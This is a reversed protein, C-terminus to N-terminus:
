KRAFDILPQGDAKMRRQREIAEERRRTENLRVANRDMLSLDNFAGTPPPATAAHGRLAEKADNIAKDALLSGKAFPGAFANSDILPTPPSPGSVGGNGAETAGAAGAGSRGNPRRSTNKRSLGGSTMASLPADQSTPPSDIQFLVAKEQRLIYTRANLIARVWDRHAAADTLCFYHIYDQDPKEFMTIPDQSRLAFGNAKPMKVAGADVLYVDFTSIQCISTEDKGKENKAHYLGHDRLELWRKNWKKKRDQVYVYGALAPSSTPVSRISLYPSLETRKILFFDTKPHARVNVVDTIMEYERLPREIGLQASCDFVVWGGKSDDMPLREREIVELALDRARASIPVEVVTFRQRSLIYVKHPQRPEAVPAATGPAIGSDHSSSLNTPARQMPADGHSISVDVSPRGHHMAAQSLAAFTATHASHPSSSAQSDKSATSPRPMDPMPPAAATNITLPAQQRSISRSRLRQFMGPQHVPVVAPAAGNAAGSSLIPFAHSRSDSRLRGAALEVGDPMRPSTAVHGVPEGHNFSPSIPSSAGKKVQATAANLAATASTALAQAQALAAPSPNAQAHAMAKQAAVVTAMANSPLDPMKAVNPLMPSIPNPGHPMAQAMAKARLAAESPTRARMGPHVYREAPTTRVSKSRSVAAQDTQQRREATGAVDQRAVTQSRQMLAANPANARERRGQVKALRQSLDNPNFVGGDGTQGGATGQKAHRAHNGASSTAGSSGKGELAQAALDFHRKREQARLAKQLAKPDDVLMGLPKDDSSDSDVATDAEAKSAPMSANRAPVSPMGGGRAARAAASQEVEGYNDESDDDTMAEAEEYEDSEEEENEVSDSDDADNRGLGPHKGGGGGGGGGAGGAGRGGGGGGDSSGYDDTDSGDSDDGGGDGGSGGTLARNSRGSPAGAAVLIATSPLGEAAIRDFADAGQESVWQLGYESWSNHRPFRDQQKRIRRAKKLKAQKRDVLVPVSFALDQVDLPESAQECLAVAAAGTEAITPLKEEEAQSVDLRPSPLSGTAQELETGTSIADAKSPKFLDAPVDKRLKDLSTNSSSQRMHRLNKPPLAIEATRSRTRSAADVPTLPLTKDMFAASPTRPSQPMPPTQPASAWGARSASYPPTPALRSPAFSYSFTDHASSLYPSSMGAASVSTGIYNEPWVNNRAQALIQQTTLPGSSGNFSNAFPASVPTRPSQLPAKSSSAFTSAFATKITLGGRDERELPRSTISPVPPAASPPFPFEARDLFAPGASSPERASTPTSPSASQGSLNSFSKKRLSPLGSLLLRKSISTTSNKTTAAKTPVPLTQAAVGQASLRTKSSQKSQRKGGVDPAVEKSAVPGTILERAIAVSNKRSTSFSKRGKSFSKRGGKISMASEGDSESGSSWRSNGTEENSDARAFAPRVELGDTVAPLLMAPPQGPQEEERSADLIAFSPPAPVMSQKRSRVLGSGPSPPVAAGSEGGNQVSNKPDVPTRLPSSPKPETPLTPGFIAINFSPVAPAASSPPTVDVQKHQSVNLSRISTPSGSDAQNAAKEQNDTSEVAAVPRVVHQQDVSESELSVRSSSSAKQSNDRHLFGMMTQLSLGEDPSITELDAFEFAATPDSGSSERSQADSRLSTVRSSLTSHRSEPSQYIIHEMFASRRRHALSSANSRRPNSDTTSPSPASSPTPSHSSSSTPNLGTGHEDADEEPDFDYFATRLLESYDSTSDHRRAEFGTAASTPTKHPSAIGASFGSSHPASLPSRLNITATLSRRRRGGASGPLTDSNSTAPSSTLVLPTPPAKRRSLSAARSRQTSSFGPAKAPLVSLGPPATTSSGTKVSNITQHDPIVNRQDSHDVAVNSMASYLPKEFDSESIVSGSPVRDFDSPCAYSSPTSEFYESAQYEPTSAIQAIFQEASLGAQRETQALLATVDPSQARTAVFAPGSPMVPITSRMQPTTCRSSAESGPPPPLPSAFPEHVGESPRRGAFRRVAPPGGSSVLLLQKPAQPAPAAAPAPPTANPQSERTFAANFGFQPSKSRLFARGQKSQMLKEAPLGTPTASAPPPSTLGVDGLGLGILLANRDASITPTPNWSPTNQYTTPLSPETPATGHRKRLLNLEKPRWAHSAGNPTLPTLPAGPENADIESSQSHAHSSSASHHTEASNVDSVAPSYYDISSDTSPQKYPHITHLLSLSSTSSPYSSLSNVSEISNSSSLLHSTSHSSDASDLQLSPKLSPLSPRALREAQVRSRPPPQPFLTDFLDDQQRYSTRCHASQALDYSDFTPHLGGPSHRRSQMSTSM